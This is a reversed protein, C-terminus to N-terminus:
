SDLKFVKSFLKPQKVKSHGPVFYHYYYKKANQCIRNYNFTCVILIASLVIYHISQHLKHILMNGQNDTSHDRDLPFIDETYFYLISTIQHLVLAICLVRSIVSNLTHDFITPRCSFYRFVIYSASYLSLFALVALLYLLPIANGHFMTFFCANLMMAYFTEFDFESDMLAENMQFQTKARKAKFARYKSQLWNILIQIFPSTLLSVAYIMVIQSGINM